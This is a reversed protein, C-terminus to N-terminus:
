LQLKLPREKPIGEERIRQLEEVFLNKYPQPCILYGFPHPTCLENLEAQSGDFHCVVFGMEEVMAKGAAWDWVPIHRHPGLIVEFKGLLLDIAKSGISGSSIIQQPQVELEQYIHWLFANFRLRHHGYRLDSFPPLIPPTLKRDFGMRSIWVGQRPLSWLMVDKLPDYILGIKLDEYDEFYAMQFTFGPRGRLYSRTGDLEDVIFGREQPQFHCFREETLLAFDPYRRCVRQNVLQSIKLDVESVLTHDQKQRVALPKKWHSRMLAGAQRAVSQM